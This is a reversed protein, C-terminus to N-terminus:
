CPLLKLLLSKQEGGRGDQILGILPVVAFVISMEFRAAVPLPPESALLRLRLTVPFRSSRM